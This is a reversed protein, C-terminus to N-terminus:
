SGGGAPGPCARRGRTGPRPDRQAPGCSKAPPETAPRAWPRSGPVPGGEGQDKGMAWRSHGPDCGSGAEERAEQQPPPQVEGQVKKTLFDWLGRPRRALRWGLKPWAPCRCPWPPPEPRSSGSYPNLQRERAERIMPGLLRVPRTM